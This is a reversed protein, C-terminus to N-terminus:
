NGHTYGFDGVIDIFKYVGYGRKVGHMRAVRCVVTMVGRLNWAPQGGCDYTRPM